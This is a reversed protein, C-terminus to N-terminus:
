SGLCDLRDLQCHQEPHHAQPARDSRSSAGNSCNPYTREEEDNFSARIVFGSASVSRRLNGFFEFKSRKGLNQLIITLLNSYVICFFSPTPYDPKPLLIAHLNPNKAVRRPSNNNWYYIKLSLMNVSNLFNWYYTWQHIEWRVHERKRCSGRGGLFLGSCHPSLSARKPRGIM